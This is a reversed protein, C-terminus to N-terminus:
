RMPRLNVSPRDARVGLDQLREHRDTRPGRELEEALRGPGGKKAAGRRPTLNIAHFHKWVEQHLRCGDPEDERDDLEDPM